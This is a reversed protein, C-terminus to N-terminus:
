ETRAPFPLAPNKPNRPHEGGTNSAHWINTLPNRPNKPHWGGMDPSLKEFLLLFIYRYRVGFVRFVGRLYTV